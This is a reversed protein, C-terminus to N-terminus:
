TRWSLSVTVESWFATASVVSKAGILPVTVATSSWTPSVTLPPPDLEAEAEELLPDPLEVEPVPAEPVPAELVPEDPVPEDPVPDDSELEDELKMVM